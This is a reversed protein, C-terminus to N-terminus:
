EEILADITEAFSAELLPKWDTAAAESLGPLESGDRRMASLYNLLFNFIFEDSQSYAFGRLDDFSLEAEESYDEGTQYEYAEKLWKAFPSGEGVMERCADREYDEHHGSREIVGNFYLCTEELIETWTKHELIREIDEKYSM